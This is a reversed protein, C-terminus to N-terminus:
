EPGPTHGEQKPAPADRPTSSKSKALASESKFEPDNSYDDEEKTM